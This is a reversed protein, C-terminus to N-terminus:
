SGPLGYLDIIRCDSIVAIRGDGVAFAGGGPFVQRILSGTSGVLADGDNLYLVGDADAAVAPAENDNTWEPAGTATDFACLGSTCSAYIRTDDALVTTAGALTYRTAGTKPNIDNVVGSSDLAFVHHGTTAGDSDGRIITWSGARTWLVKGTTLSAAEFTESGDGTNSCRTWIVEAAVVIAGVQDSCSWTDAEWVVSGTAAQVVETVQGDNVSSGSIVVYSGTLQM